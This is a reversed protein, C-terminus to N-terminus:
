ETGRRLLEVLVARFPAADGDCATTGAEGAICASVIQTRGDTCPLATMRRAALLSRLAAVREDVDRVALQLRYLKAQDVIGGLEAAYRQEARIERVAAARRERSACMAGSVAPRVLRPDKLRAEMEAELRREEREREEAETWRAARAQQEELVRQAEAAERAPRGAEWEEAARAEREADARERALREARAADLRRRVAEERERRDAAEKVPGVLAMAAYGAVCGSASVMLAVAAVFRLM